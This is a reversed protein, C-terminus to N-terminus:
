IIMIEICQLVNCVSYIIILFKGYAEFFLLYIPLNIDDAYLEVDKVTM